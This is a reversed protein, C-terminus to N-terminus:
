MVKIQVPCLLENCRDYSLEQLHEDMQIVLIIQTELNVKAARDPVLIKFVKHAGQLSHINITLQDYYNSSTNLDQLATRFLWM